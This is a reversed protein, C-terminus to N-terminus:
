PAAAPSAEAPSALDEARYVHRAEEATLPEPIASVDILPPMPPPCPPIFCGTAVTVGGPPIGFVDPARPVGDAIAEGAAIADDTPSSVRQDDSDPACVVIEGPLPPPCRRRLGPPRYAERAVEIMEEASPAAATRDAEQARGSSAGALALAAGVFAAIKSPM